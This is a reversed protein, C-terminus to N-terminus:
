KRIEGPDRNRKKQFLEECSHTKAATNGVSSELVGILCADVGRVCTFASEIEQVFDSPCLLQNAGHL